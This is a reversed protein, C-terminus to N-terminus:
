GIQRILSFDVKGLGKVELSLSEGGAALTVSGVPASVLTEVGQTVNAIRAEARLEYRGEPQSLGDSSLGDWTFPVMGKPHKGLDLRRILRGSADFIGVELQDTDAPLDVAGSLPLGDVLAGQASQVLVNRGVLTAAQLAQNSILSSSLDKFATDLKDIGSVTGFQALQAIFDTSEMPKFPDQNSLQTVMLNLFDKQGLENSRAPEAQRTLGLDQFINTDNVPNM